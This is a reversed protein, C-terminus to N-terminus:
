VKEYEHSIPGRWRRQVVGPDVESKVYPHQVCGEFALLLWPLFLRASDAVTRVDSQKRFKGFADAVSDTRSRAAVGSGM